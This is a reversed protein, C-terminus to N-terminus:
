LRDFRVGREAFYRVGKSLREALLPFERRELPPVEGPARADRGHVVGMRAYVLSKGPLAPTGGASGRKRARNMGSLQYM